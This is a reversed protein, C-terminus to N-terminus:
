YAKAFVVRQKSEKGTLICKGDEMKGDIPICRITAKTLEKIKLETEQTGDWHAYIFGGKGDLVEKFTEFDDVYTTHDARFKLAAQFLNDQIEELLKKIYSAVNERSVMSKEKTDRRAIEVMNKALDRMGIGIRIPTGKMEHEAFKFGPRKQKTGM